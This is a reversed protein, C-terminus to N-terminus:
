HRTITLPWHPFKKSWYAVGYHELTRKSDHFQKGAYSLRQLAPIIGGKDRIVNRLDEVTMKTSVEIEFPGGSHKGDRDVTAGYEADSHLESRVQLRVTPTGRYKDGKPLYGHPVGSEYAARRDAEEQEPTPQYLPRWDAYQGGDKFIIPKYKEEESYFPYNNPPVPQFGTRGTGPTPNWASRAAEGAGEAGPGYDAAGAAVEAAFLVAASAGGAGVEGEAEGGEESGAEEGTPTTAGARRPPAGARRRQWLGPGTRMGDRFYGDHSEGSRLRLKGYGYAAETTEALHLWRKGLEDLAGRVVAEAAPLAHKARGGLLLSAWSNLLAQEPRPEPTRARTPTPFAFTSPTRTRM